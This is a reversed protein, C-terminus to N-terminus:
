FLHGIIYYDNFYFDCILTRRAEQFTLQMLILFLCEYYEWLRYLVLVVSHSGSVTKTAHVNDTM